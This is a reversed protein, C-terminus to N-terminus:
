EDTAGRVDGDLTFPADVLALAEELDWPAGDRHDLWWAADRRQRAPVVVRQAFEEETWERESCWEYAESLVTFRVRAGAAVAWQTGQLEPMEERREWVDRESLATEVIEIHRPANLGEREVLLRAHEARRCAVCDQEALASLIAARLLTTTAIDYVLQHGCSYKFTSKATIMKM